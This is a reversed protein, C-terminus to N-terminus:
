AAVKQEATEALLRQILADAEECGLIARSAAEDWVGTVAFQSDLLAYHRDVWERRLRRLLAAPKGSYTISTGDPYGGFVSPLRHQRVRPEPRDLIVASVLASGIPNDAWQPLASM